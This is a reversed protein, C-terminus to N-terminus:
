TRRQARCLPPNIPSSYPMPTGEMM